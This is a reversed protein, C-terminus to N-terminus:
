EGTRKVKEKAWEYLADYLPFEWDLKQHDDKTMTAFGHAIANLGIGEPEHYASREDDVDATSVIKAILDLAPDKGWLNHKKMLTIFTCVEGEPTEGHSFDAGKADYSKANLEKAKTLVEDRPVFIFEAAPDIFKKIFWPCAVRDVNGHERTIWKM